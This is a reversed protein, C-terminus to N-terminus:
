GIAFYDSIDVPVMLGGHETGAKGDGLDAHLADFSNSFFKEPERRVARRSM